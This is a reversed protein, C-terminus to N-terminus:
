KLYGAGIVLICKETDVMVKVYIYPIDFIKDEVLANWVEQYETKDFQIEIYLIRESHLVKDVTERIKTTVENM